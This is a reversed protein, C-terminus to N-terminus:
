VASYYRAGNKIGAFRFPAKTVHPTDFDAGTIQQAKYLKRYQAYDVIERSTLAQTAVEPRVIERYDPQVIATFFEGIAGSGYSFLGVRKGSLDADHHLLSLLGLYMSATYSNGIQPTYKLSPEVVAADDFDVGTHERLRQQAKLAMKTFPQHHVFRAIEGIEAGGRASYDQWAGVFADLYAQLSVAGDVLPTDRSNPRWFDDIHASWLGSVPEIELLAPDSGVLMAVAGAGQTPEGASDLAYRAVDSAIVLVRERADRAVLGLALQLAATGAYCAQKLEVVRLGPGLGLLDQVFIGASKSQDVGSETALILTRVGESGTRQLLRSAATAALTVADEDPAPFSFFEQRLGLHYKAVDVGTAQALAALPVAFHATAMEMDIIGFRM